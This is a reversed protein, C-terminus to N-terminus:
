PENKLKVISEVGLIYSLHGFGAIHGKCVPAIVSHRRFEERAYINSLHVEVVPIKLALVADRIAYSYHTFAGPNIVVGNFDSDVISNLKDVIEGEHNSQFFEFEVNPFEKILTQNIQELTMNGYIEPERKGLLNLNAGHIVLIKM